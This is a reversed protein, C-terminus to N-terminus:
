TSNGRKKEIEDSIKWAANSQLTKFREKALKLKPCDNRLHDTANCIVCTKPQGNYLILAKYGDIELFSPVERKLLISVIRVGTKIGPLCNHEKPYKEDQISEVKGYLSLKEHIHRNEVEIPINLVRVMKRKEDCKKIAVEIVGQKTEWAVSDGLRNKLKELTLENVFKVYVANLICDFQVAEVQDITLGIDGTLWMNVDGTNPRETGRAFKCELTNKRETRNM